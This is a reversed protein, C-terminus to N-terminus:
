MLKELDNNIEEKIKKNFNFLGKIAKLNTKTKRTQSQKSLEVKIYSKKEGSIASIISAIEQSEYKKERLSNIIGLYELILIKQKPAYGSNPIGQVKEIQKKKDEIETEIIKSITNFKQEVALFENEKLHPRDSILRDNLTYRVRELLRIADIPKDDKVFHIIWKRVDALPTNFLFYIDQDIKKFFDM